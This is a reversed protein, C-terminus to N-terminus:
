PAADRQAAAQAERERRRAQSRGSHPKLKYRQPLPRGFLKVSMANFEAITESVLEKHREMAREHVALSIADREEQSYRAWLTEGEGRNKLQEARLRKREEAKAERAAAKAAKAAAKEAAIAQQKIARAAARAAARAEKEAARAAAEAQREEARAAAKAQREAARAAAEAQRAARKEAPSRHIKDLRAQEDADPVFKCVRITCGGVQEEVWVLPM